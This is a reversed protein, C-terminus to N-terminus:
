DGACYLVVRKITSPLEKSKYDIWQLPEFLANVITPEVLIGTAEMSFHCKDPHACVGSSVKAACMTCENCYGSQLLRKNKHATLDKMKKCMVDEVVAGLKQMVSVALFPKNQQKATLWEEPKIDIVGLVFHSYKHKFADFKPSNPPCAGSGFMRCGNQCLSKVKSYDSIISSVEIEGLRMRYPLLRGTKTAYFAKADLIM